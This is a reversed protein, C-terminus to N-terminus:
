PIHMLTWYQPLFPDPMGAMEAGVIVGCLSALVLTEIVISDFEYDLTLTQGPCFLHSPSDM